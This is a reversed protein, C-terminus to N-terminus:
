NPTTVRACSSAATRDQPDSAASDYVLAVANCSTRSSPGRVCTLTGRDGIVASGVVLAAGGELAFPLAVQVEGGEPIWVSRTVQHITM